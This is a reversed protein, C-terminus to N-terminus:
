DEKIEHTVEDIAWTWANFDDVNNMSAIGVAATVRTTDRSLPASALAPNLKSLNYKATFRDLDNSGFGTQPALIGTMVIFRSFPAAPTMSFGQADEAMKIGWRM